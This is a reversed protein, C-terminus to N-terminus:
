VNLIFTSFEGDDYYDCDVTVDNIGNRFYCPLKGDFGHDTFWGVTVADCLQEADAMCKVMCDALSLEDQYDNSGDYSYCNYNETNTWSPLQYGPFLNWGYGSLTESYPLTDNFGNVFTFGFRDGIADFDSLDVNVTEEEEANLNAYFFGLAGSGFADYRYLSYVYGNDGDIEGRLSSPIFEPAGYVKANFDNTYIDMGPVHFSLPFSFSLDSAPSFHLSRM